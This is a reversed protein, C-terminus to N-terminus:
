RRWPRHRFDPCSRKARRSSRSRPVVVGAVHVAASVQGGDGGGVEGGSVPPNEHPSGQLDGHDAVDVRCRKGAKESVKPPRGCPASGSSGAMTFGAAPGESLTISRSMGCDIM